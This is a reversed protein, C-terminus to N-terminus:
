YSVGVFKKFDGCNKLMLAPKTAAPPQFHPATQMDRPAPWQRSDPLRGTVHRTKVEDSFEIGWLPTKAAWEDSAFEHRIM